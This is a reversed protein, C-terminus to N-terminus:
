LNSKVTRYDSERTPERILDWGVANFLPDLVLLHGGPSLHEEGVRTDERIVREFLWM